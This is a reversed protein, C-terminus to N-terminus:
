AVAVPVSAMTGMHNELVILTRVDKDAWLM